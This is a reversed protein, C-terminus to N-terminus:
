KRKWNYFTAESVGMKRYVEATPTGTQAQQRAFLIQSETFKSKKIISYRPQFTAFRGFVGSYLPVTKLPSILPIDPVDPEAYFIAGKNFSEM